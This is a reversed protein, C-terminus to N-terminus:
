YDPDAEKSAKAAAKAIVDMSRSIEIRTRERVVSPVKEPVKDLETRVVRILSAIVGRVEEVPVLGRMKEAIKNEIVAARANAVRAAADAQASRRGEDDLWKLYGQIAPVLPYADRGTKPIVGAQALQQVRRPTLMLLAALQQGSVTTPSTKEATM